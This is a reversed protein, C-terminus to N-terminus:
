FCPAATGQRLDKKKYEGYEASQNRILRKKTKLLLRRAGETYLTNKFILAGAQLKILFSDECLHKGIFKVLNKRVNDKCFVEPCLADTNQIRKQLKPTVYLERVTPFWCNM